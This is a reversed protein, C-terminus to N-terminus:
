IHSINCPKCCYNPSLDAYLFFAYSFSLINIRLIHCPKCYYDMVRWMLVPCTSNGIGVCRTTELCLWQQLLSMWKVLLLVALPTLEIKNLWLIPKFWSVPSDSLTKHDSKMHSKLEKSSIFTAECLFCEFSGCSRQHIMVGHKTPFGKGCEFCQNSFQQGCSQEHVQHLCFDCHVIIFHVQLDPKSGFIEGCEFCDYCVPQRTTQKM